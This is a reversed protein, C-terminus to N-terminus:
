SIVFWTGYSSLALLLEGLSDMERPTNGHTITLLFLLGFCQFSVVAPPFKPLEEVSDHKKDQSM